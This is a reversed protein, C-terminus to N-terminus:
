EGTTQIPSLFQIVTEFMKEKYLRVYITHQLRDSTTLSLAFRNLHVMLLNGDLIPFPLQQFLYSGEALARKPESDDDPSAYGREICNVICLDDTMIAECYLYGDAGVPLADFQNLLAEFAQDCSGKESIVTNYRIPQQLYLQM